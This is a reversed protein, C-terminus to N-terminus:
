SSPHFKAVIEPRTVIERVKDVDACIGAIDVPVIVKTHVTIAAALKYYDM